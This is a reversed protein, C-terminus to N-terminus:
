DRAEFELSLRALYEDAFGDMKASISRILGVLCNYGVGSPIAVFLGLVTTLLASSIGPAVESLLASGKAGMAQFADLVGWVTGLLGILPAITAGIAIFAMMGDLRIQQESLTEEVVSKVLAVSAPRLTRGRVSRENPMSAPDGGSLEHVLKECSKRYIVYIPMDSRKGQFHPGLISESRTFYSRFLSTFRKTEFLGKFKCVMVSWVAISMIVQVLVIFKGMGNSDLYSQWLNALVPLFPSPLLANIEIM